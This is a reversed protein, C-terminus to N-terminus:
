PQGTKLSWQEPGLAGKSFAIADLCARDLALRHDVRFVDPGYGAIAFGTSRDTTSLVEASAREEGDVYLRALHGEDDYVAALHYWTGYDLETSITVVQNYEDTPVSFCLLFRSEDGEIPQLWLRTAIAKDAGEGRWGALRGAGKSADILIGQHNTGHFQEILTVIEWTFSGEAPLPGEGEATQYIDQHHPHEARLELVERGDVKEMGAHNYYSRYYGSRGGGGSNLLRPGSEGQEPDPIYDEGDFPEDLSHSRPIVEGEHARGEFTYRAVVEASMNTAGVALVILM